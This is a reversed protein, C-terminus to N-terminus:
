TQSVVTNKFPFYYYLLVVYMESFKGSYFFYIKLLFGLDLSFFVRLPLVSAYDIEMSVDPTTASSTHSKIRCVNNTLSLLM